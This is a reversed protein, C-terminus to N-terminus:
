EHDNCVISYYTSPETTETIINCGEDLFHEKFEEHTYFVHFAVDIGNQEGTYTVDVTTVNVSPSGMTDEWSGFAQRMYSRWKKLGDLGRASYDLFRLRTTYWDLLHEAAADPILELLARVKKRQETHQAHTQDEELQDKTSKERFDNKTM